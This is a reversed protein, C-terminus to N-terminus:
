WAPAGDTDAERLRIVERGSRDVTVTVNRILVRQLVGVAPLHALWDSSSPDSVARLLVFGDRAYDVGLAARKTKSGPMRWSDVRASYRRRWGADLWAAVWDPCAQKVAACHQVDVRGM